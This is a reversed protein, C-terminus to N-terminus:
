GASARGARRRAGLALLGGAGLLALTAPEPVAAAPTGVAFAESSIAYISFPQTSSNYNFNAYLWNSTDYPFGIDPVSTGLPNASKTGNTKSGTWAYNYQDSVQSFQNKNFSSLLVQSFLAATSTALKTGDVLYIPVDNCGACAINDVANTTATSAIATWSLSALDSNQNAETTAFANYTAISSSTATTGDRTLFALRYGQGASLGTPSVLTANATLPAAVPALLVFAVAGARITTQDFHM